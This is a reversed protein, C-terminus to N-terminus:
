LFMVMSAWASFTRLTLRASDPIIISGTVRGVVARTESACFSIVSYRIPPIGITSLLPLNTPMTVLRSKRKSFFSARGMESTIVEQNGDM